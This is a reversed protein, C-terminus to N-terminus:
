TRFASAASANLFVEGSSHCLDGDTGGLALHDFDPKLVFRTNPLLVRDGAAPGAHILAM